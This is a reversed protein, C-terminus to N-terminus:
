ISINVIIINYFGKPPSAKHNPLVDSSNAYKKNLLVEDDEDFPKVKKSMVEEFSWSAYGATTKENLSVPGFHLKNWVIDKLGASLCEGIQWSTEDFLKKHMNDPFFTSRNIILSLAFISKSYSKTAAFNRKVALLLQSLQISAIYHLDTNEILPRAILADILYSVSDALYVEREDSELSPKCAAELMRYESIKLCSFFYLFSDQTTQSSAPTVHQLAEQLHEVILQVLELGESHERIVRTVSKEPPVKDIILQLRSIACQALHFHVDMAYADTLVESRLTLKLHHLAMELHIDSNNQEEINQYQDTSPYIYDPNVIKPYKILLLATRHHADAWPECNNPLYKPKLSKCYYEFAQDMNQQEYNTIDTTHFVLDLSDKDTDRGNEEDRIGPAIWGQYLRGLIFYM